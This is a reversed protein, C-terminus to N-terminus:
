DALCINCVYTHVGHEELLISRFQELLMSDLGLHLLPKTEDLDEATVTTDEPLLLLIEQRVFM